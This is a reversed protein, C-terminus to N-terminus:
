RDVRVLVPGATQSNAVPNQKPVDSAQEAMPEEAFVLAAQRREGRDIERALFERWSKPIEPGCLGAFERLWYLRKLRKEAALLDLSPWNTRWEDAHAVTLPENADCESSTPTM